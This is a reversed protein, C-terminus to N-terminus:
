IISSNLKPYLAASRKIHTTTSMCKHSKIRTCWIGIKYRKVATTWVFHLLFFITHVRCYTLQSKLIKLNLTFQHLFDFTNGELFFLVDKQICHLFFHYPCQIVQKWLYPRIKYNARIIRSCYRIFTFGSFVISQCFQKEHYM